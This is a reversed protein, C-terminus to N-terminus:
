KAGVAMKRFGDLYGSTWGNRWKENHDPDSGAAEMAKPAIESEPPVKARPKGDVKGAEYGLNYGDEYPVTQVPPAATVPQRTPFAPADPMPPTTSAVPAKECSVLGLAAVCLLRRIM